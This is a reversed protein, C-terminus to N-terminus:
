ACIIAACRASRSRALRRDDDRDHISASM